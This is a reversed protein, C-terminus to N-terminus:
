LFIIYPQFTGKSEGDDWTIIKTSKTKNNALRLAVLPSSSYKLPWSSPWDKVSICHTDAGIDM